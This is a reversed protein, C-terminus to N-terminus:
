ILRMQPHGNRACEIFWEWRNKEWLPFASDLSDAGVRRAHEVKRPTGCRGYHFRVGWKRASELWDSATCKFKTTGGLFIGAYRSSAMAPALDLTQMGDQIALYWPWDPLKDRWKESFDLSEQGGAVIDPVIALYPIGVRYARELRRLYAFEDFARGNRWDRYAGNDFGWPEGDYPKPHADIWMRGWGLCKLDHVIKSSRTDGVLVTM